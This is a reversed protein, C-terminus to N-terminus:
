PLERSVAVNSFPVSIPAAPKNVTVKVSIVGAVELIRSAITHALTEILDFRTNVVTDQVIQAVEAYNITNAVDDSAVAASFDSIVNVDVIFNQGQHKEEDLVGHFGFATVGTLIIEDRM